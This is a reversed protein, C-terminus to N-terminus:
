KSIRLMAAGAELIVPRWEDEPPAIGSDIFAAHLERISRTVASLALVIETEYDVDAKRGLAARRIFESAGMQRISALHRIKDADTKTLRVLIADDKREDDPVTKFLKSKAM